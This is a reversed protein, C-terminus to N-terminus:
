ESFPDITVSVGQDCFVLGTYSGSSGEFSTGDPGTGSLAAIGVDDTPGLNYIGEEMYADHHGQSNFYGDYHVQGSPSGGWWQIIESCRVGSNGSYYVVREQAGRGNADTHNLYHNSAMQAVAWLIITDLGTNRVLQPLGSQARESNISALLDSEVTSLRAAEAGAETDLGGSSGGSSSSSSSGGSGCSLSFLFVIILLLHQRKMM